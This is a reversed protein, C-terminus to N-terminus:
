RWSARRAGASLRARDWVVLIGQGDRDFLFAEVGEAVPM